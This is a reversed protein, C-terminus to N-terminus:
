RSQPSLILRGISLLVFFVNMIPSACIHGYERPPTTPPPHALPGLYCSSNNADPLLSCNLIWDPSGFRGLLPQCDDRAKECLARCPPVGRSDQPSCPPAFASCAFHRLYASCEIRLLPGLRVMELQAEQQTRHGFRNPYATQNYDTETCEQITLQECETLIIFFLEM